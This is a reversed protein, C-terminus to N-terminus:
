RQAKMLEVVISQRNEIGAFRVLRDDDDYWLDFHQNPVQVRYHASNQSKDLVTLYEMGVYELHADIFKGTDPELVTIARSPGPMAPPTWWISTWADLPADSREGNTIIRLKGNLIAAKVERRSGDITSQAELNQLRGNKWMESESFVARWWGDGRRVQMFKDVSVKWGGDMKTEAIRIEGVKQNEISIGFTRVEVDGALLSSGSM